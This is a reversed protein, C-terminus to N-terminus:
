GPSSDEFTNKMLEHVIAPKSTYSSLTLLLIPEFTELQLGHAM